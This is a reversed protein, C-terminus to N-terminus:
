LIDFTTTDIYNKDLAMSTLLAYRANEERGDLSGSDISDLIRLASDPRSEMLAEAKDMESWAASHRACGAMALIFTVSLLPIIYRTSRLTM